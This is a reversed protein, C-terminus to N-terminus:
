ASFHSARGFIQTHLLRLRVVHGRSEKLQSNSWTIWRLSFFSIVTQLASCSWLIVVWLLFEFHDQIFFTTMKLLVLSCSDVVGMVAIPHRCHKRKTNDQQFDFMASFGMATSLPTTSVNPSTTRKHIQEAKSLTVKEDAQFLESSGVAVSCIHATSNCHFHM